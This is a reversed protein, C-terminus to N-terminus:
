SEWIYWRHRPRPRLHSKQLTCFGLCFGLICAVTRMQPDSPPCELGMLANCCKSKSLLFKVMVTFTLKPIARVQLMHSPSSFMSLKSLFPAHMYKGLKQSSSQLSPIAKRSWHSVGSVDPLMCDAASHLFKQTSHGPLVWCKCLLSFNTKDALNHIKHLNRSSLLQSSFSVRIRLHSDHSANQTKKKSNGTESFLM